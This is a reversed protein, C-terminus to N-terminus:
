REVHVEAGCSCNPHLPPLSQRIDEVRFNRGNLSNCVKCVNERGSTKWTWEKHPSNQMVYKVGESYAKRLETRAIQESKWSIWNYTKSVQEELEKGEYKGVIGQVLVEEIKNAGENQAKNVWKFANNKITEMKKPAIPIHSELGIKKASDKNGKIWAEEIAKDVHPRVSGEETRLFMALQRIDGERLDEKVAWKEKMSELQKPVNLKKIKNLKEQYVSRINFTMKHILPDLGAPDDELSGFDEKLSEPRLSYEPPM